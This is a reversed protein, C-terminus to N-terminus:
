WNTCATHITSGPPLEQGPVLLPFAPTGPGPPDVPAASGNQLERLLEATLVCPCEQVAGPRSGAAGPPVRPGPSGGTDRPAGVVGPLVWPGPLGWCGLSWGKDWSAGVVGLLVWQGPSGGSGQSGGGAKPGGQSCAGGRELVPSPLVWPDGRPSPDPAPSRVPPHRPSVSLCAGRHLYTGPPCHCGEQCGGWFCGVRGALHACSYPCGEDRQCERYLRGAPCGAEAGASPSLM